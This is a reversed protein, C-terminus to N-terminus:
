ALEEGGPYVNRRPGLRRSVPMFKSLLRVEWWRALRRRLLSGETRWSGDMLHVGYNGFQHWNDSDCVDDPFLVTVDAILEPNEMLTRTVLGPGTTNLVRFDSHFIRPIGAMMPRVWHPDRQAEVCNQIVSELFANGPAAGFAYNGIEWDIGYRRRLFRSLSLEEFPFVCSQDLLPTLPESLFVDLDFYFGGLRFVALYRFFDFRQIPRLFSDFIMQYEPFEAAMFRLVDDDDFFVHEWDPHLLKLNTAAARAM